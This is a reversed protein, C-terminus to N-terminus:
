SQPELAALVMNALKRMDSSVRYNFYDTDSSQTYKAIVGDYSFEPDLDKCIGELLGFVRVIRFIKGSFKVPLDGRMDSVTPSKLIVNIDVTRIYKAYQELLQKVKVDDRVDFLDIKKMLKVADDLNGSVIDFLMQKLRIRTQADISIVNGMDYLVVRGDSSVGLNGEHPDGHMVGHVVLQCIFTDMLEFALKKREAVTMGSKVDRIKSSPTYSMVLFDDFCLDDYYEPMIINQNSQKRINKYNELERTYDMEEAFWEKFDHLLEKTERINETNLMDMVSLIAMLITIDLDLDGQVGPRRVKLAVKKGNKLVALHVQGISACALPERAVQEIQSTYKGLRSLILENVEAQPAPDVADQLDRLSEVVQPDFIDKRSSIFQGIKIYTPGMDQLAQKLWEANQRVDVKRVNAFRKRVNYVFKGTKLVRSLM